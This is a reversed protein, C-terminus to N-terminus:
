ITLMAGREDFTSGPNYAVEWVNYEPDAFCASRFDGENSPDKLINGGAEAVVNIIDDVQEPTDVNISFSVGKFGSTNKPAELGTDDALSQLPYLSLMVGATKFVAYNQYGHGTEKWGLYTYFDRLVPLNKCGLTILSIRQPVM